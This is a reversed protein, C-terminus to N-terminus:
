QLYRVYSSDLMFGFRGMGVLLISFSSIIIRKNRFKYHKFFFTIQFQHTYLFIEKDMKNQIIMSSFLLVTRLKPRIVYNNVIFTQKELKDLTWCSM